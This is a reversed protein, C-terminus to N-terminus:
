VLSMVGNATTQLRVNVTTFNYYSVILNTTGPSTQIYQAIPFIFTIVGGNISSAIPQGKNPSAATGSTIGTQDIAYDYGGGSLTGDLSFNFSDTLTAGLGNQADAVTQIASDVLGIKSKFDSSNYLDAVTPYNDILTYSFNVITNGQAGTPLEIGNYPSINEYEFSFDLQAGAVLSDELGTLDFSFGANTESRTYSFASYSQTVNTDATL